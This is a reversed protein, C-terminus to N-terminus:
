AAAPAGAKSPKYLMIKKYEEFDVKGDGDKDAFEMMEKVTQQSCNPDMEKIAAELEGHEIHGSKDKDVKDFACKLAEDTYDRSGRRSRRGGLSNWQDSMQQGIQDLSEELDKSKRRVSRAQSQANKADGLVGQTQGLLAAMEKELSSMEKKPAESSEAMTGLHATARGLHERM